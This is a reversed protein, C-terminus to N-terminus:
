LERQTMGPVEKVRHKQTWTTQKAQPMGTSSRLTSGFYVFIGNKDKLSIPMTSQTSYLVPGMSDSPSSEILM